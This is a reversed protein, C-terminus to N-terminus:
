DEDPYALRVGDLEESDVVEDDHDNEIWKQYASESSEAEIMVHVDKVWSVKYTPM